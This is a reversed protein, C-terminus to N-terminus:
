QTSSFTVATFDDATHKRPSKQIEQYMCKLVYNLLSLGQSAARAKFLRKEEASVRITLTTMSM